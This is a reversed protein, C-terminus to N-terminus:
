RKPGPRTAPAIKALGVLHLVLSKLPIVVLDEDGKVSEVLDGLKRGAGSVDGSLAIKGPSESYRDHLRILLEDGMMSRSRPDGEFLSPHPELESYAFEYLNRYRTRDDVLMKLLRPPVAQRLAEFAVGIEIFHFYGYSLRVGRGLGQESEEFPIGLQRLYRVQDRLAQPPERGGALCWLVQGHSLDLHPVSPAM